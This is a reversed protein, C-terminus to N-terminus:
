GTLASRFVGSLKTKEAEFCLQKAALDSAARMLEVSARTLGDLTRVLDGEDFGESVCGIEYKTILMSMEPSPGALIGLRSQIYEFFKNPLAHQLTTDHPPFFAMGVDYRSTQVLLDSYELAEHFQVREDAVARLEDLYGCDPNALHLHLVCPTKSQKVANILTELSRRRYAAGHYVLHIVENTRADCSVADCYPVANLVTVAEVGIDALKKTHGDSVTMVKDCKGLHRHYTQLRCFHSILHVGYKALKLPTFSSSKFSFYSVLYLDRLDVVIRARNEKALTQAFPVLEVEEVLIIMPKLLSLCHNEERSLKMQFKSRQALFPMGMLCALGLLHIQLSYYFKTLLSATKVKRNWSRSSFVTVHLGLEELIQVNRKIRQKANADSLTLVFAHGDRLQASGSILQGKVSPQAM